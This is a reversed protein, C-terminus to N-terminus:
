SIALTMWARSLLGCESGAPVAAITEVLATPALENFPSTVMDIWLGRRFFMFAILILAGSGWLRSRSIFYSQFGATFLLMAITAIIFVCIGESFSVDM